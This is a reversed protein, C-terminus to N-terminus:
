RNVRNVQGRIEGDPHGITHVNVYANGNRFERLLDNITKGSLPGILDQNSLFGRM